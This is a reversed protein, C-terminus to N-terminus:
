ARHSAAYKAQRREFPREGGEVHYLVLDRTEFSDLTGSRDVTGRLATARLAIIQEADASVLVNASRTAFVCQRAGRRRRLSTVIYEEIWPAHLADEPQDVLLPFEGEALAIMLVVTCKQGHALDELDRYRQSEVAFQVKVADEVDMLQLEYLDTLRNRIQVNEMFRQFVDISLGTRSALTQFDGAVLAKVFPVPHVTTAITQLDREEVRSGVRLELLARLFDRYNGASHVQIRVRQQLRESLEEAKVTRKATLARRSDQLNTLLEERRKDLSQRRPTFVDRVDKAIAKLESENARLKSLKEHLVAQPRIAPDLGAVLQQYRRDAEEFRADWRERIDSLAESSAKFALQAQEGLSLLTKDLKRGIRAAERMLDRNPTRSGVEKLDVLSSTLRLRNEAADESGTAITEAAADLVRRESYWGEQAKLKPDRLLRAYRKVEEEVGPLQRVRDASSALSAEAELIDAANRRLETKTRHIAAVDADTEILDDLLSLRALPERAFEIIEGQSFGRVPFFGAVDVPGDLPVVAADTIRSVQPDPKAGVLWTREILYRQGDKSVVVSVTALDGLSFGLLREIEEAIRPLVRQDVQQNLAYRILELSLSKGSGTGGILCSINPNLRLKQGEFFGGSVWLGDITASPEPRADTELRVRIEPDLLAQRLGSISPEGMSLYCARGGVADLEHHNAGARYCDSGQVCAVQRPYGSRSGTQFAEKQSPDVIEIGRIEVTAYIAKRRIASRSMQNWFGKERDAHAAIAVGGELDVQGAVETINMTAIAQLDGRKKAPIGIRVLFEEIERVPKGPAFIALLHGESTSVEVGPFVALGSGHAADSVLDCWSATNHDTVAIAELGHDLALRVLDEPSASAWIPSMDPSAPTHVHLDVRRFRAGDALALLKELDDM